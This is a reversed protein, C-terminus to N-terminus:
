QGFHLKSLNAILIEILSDSWLKNLDTKRSDKILEFDTSIQFFNGFTFTNWVSNGVSMGFEM